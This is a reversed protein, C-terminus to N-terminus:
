EPRELLCHRIVGGPVHGVVSFREGNGGGGEATFLAQAAHEKAILDTMERGGLFIEAILDNGAGPM